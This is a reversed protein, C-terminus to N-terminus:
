LLWCFFTDRDKNM